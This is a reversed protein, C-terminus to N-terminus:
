CRQRDATRVRRAQCWDLKRALSSGNQLNWDDAADDVPSDQDIVPDLRPHQGGHQRRREPGLRDAAGAQHSDAQDPEPPQPGPEQRGPQSDAGLVSGMPHRDLPVFVAREAFSNEDAPPVAIGPEVRQGAAPEKRAIVVVGSKRHMFRGLVQLHGQVAVVAGGAHQNAPM